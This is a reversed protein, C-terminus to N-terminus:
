KRLECQVRAAADHPAPAHMHLASTPPPPALLSSAEPHQVICWCRARHVQRCCRSGPMPHQQARHHLTDGLVERGGITSFSPARRAHAPMAAAALVQGAAAAALRGAHPRLAIGSSCQMVITSSSSSSRTRTRAWESCLHLQCMPGGLCRSLNPAAPTNSTCCISKPLLATPVPALAMSGRALEAIGRDGALLATCRHTHGLMDERLAGCPAHHAHTRAHSRRAGLMPQLMLVALIHCPPQQQAADCASRM